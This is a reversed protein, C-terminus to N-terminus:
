AASADLRLPARLQVGAAELSQCLLADDAGPRVAGQLPTASRRPLHRLLLRVSDDDLAGDPSGESERAELEAESGAIPLFLVVGTGHAVIRDVIARWRSRLPGGSRLPFRELLAERQVGVLPEGADRAGYELVVRELGLRLDHYAHLRFWHPPAGARSAEIPLYYTAVHVFRPADALAVPEFYLVPEPPAAPRTGADPEGLAHGSRSKAALYHANWPSADHRIPLARQVPVQEAALAALKEPNNTLLQLPAEIGLLRLASGVDGYRRYDRGLGLREYAEFTTVQDRSAQVIMRDRAKAAFGAGRGEQLLYFVVGRGAGAMRALAGSLQQACDCDCAGFTESTVCSSHVRALLPAPGTPDGTTVALVFSRTALNRFVHARFDGHVTALPREGVSLLTGHAAHASV